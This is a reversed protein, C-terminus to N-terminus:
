KFPKEHVEFRLEETVECSGNAEHNGSDAFRPLVSRSGSRPAFAEYCEEREPEKSCKQWCQPIGGLCRELTPLVLLRKVM